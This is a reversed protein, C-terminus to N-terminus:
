DGLNRGGAVFVGGKFRELARRKVRKRPKLPDKTGRFDNKRKKQGISVALHRRDRRTHIQGHERRLPLVVEGRKAPPGLAIFPAEYDEVGL